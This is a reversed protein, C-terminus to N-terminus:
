SAEQRVQTRAVPCTVSSACPGLDEAVRLVGKGIFDQFYIKKRMLGHKGKQTGRTTQKNVSPSLGFHCRRLVSGPDSGTQLNTSLFVQRDILQILISTHSFNSFSICNMSESLQVHEWLFLAIWFMGMKWGGGDMSHYCKVRYRAYLHDFQCTNKAYTLLESLQFLHSFLPIALWGLCLKCCGASAWINLLWGKQAHSAWTIYKDVCSRDSTM